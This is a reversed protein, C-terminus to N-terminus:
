ELEKPDVDLHRAVTKYFLRETSGLSVWDIKIENLQGELHFHPGKPPRLDFLVRESPNQANFAIRSFRYGGPFKEVEPGTIEYVDM